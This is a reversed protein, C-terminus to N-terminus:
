GSEKENELAQKVHKMLMGHTDLIHADIFVLCESLAIEQAEALAKDSQDCSLTVTVNMSVSSYDPGSVKESVSVSTRAQCDGLLKKLRDRNADSPEKMDVEISVPVGEFSELTRKRYVADITGFLHFSM